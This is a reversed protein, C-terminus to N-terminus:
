GERNVTSFVIAPMVAPVSVDFRDEDARCAASEHLEHMRAIVPNLGPTPVDYLGIGGNECTNACLRRDDYHQVNAALMFAGITVDENDFSRMVPEPVALMSTAAKGSMVYQRASPAPTLSLCVCLSYSLPLRFSPRDPCALGRRDLEVGVLSGWCHSFYESGLLAHQPEYWRNSPDHYVPGRKMCGTYDVQRSEWQKVAEPLRTLKLYVDDDVKVIYKPEYSEMVARIFERTKNVLNHYDEVIPLVLFDDHRQQESAFAEKVPATKGSGIVFKAVIGAEELKKMYV